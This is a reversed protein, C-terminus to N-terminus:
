PSFGMTRAEKHVPQLGYGESIAVKRLVHLGYGEFWLTKLCGTKRRM